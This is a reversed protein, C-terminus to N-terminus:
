QLALQWFREGAQEVLKTLTEPDHWNPVSTIGANSNTVVECGSLVAEIVARPEADFDNPLFIFHKARSMVELVEARPKNHMMLIPINNATSWSLAEGPGKQQHLRAAWLAFNEKEGVQFETVDLPSLVWSFNKPTTWELEIQIHRPTRCILRRASSILNARAQSRTQKHHIAVVPKRNALQNMADDTLQDTGTVIIQEYDLAQEWDAPQIIKVEEPAIELLRKDTMEAGGVLTGDALPLHHSVWAILKVQKKSIADLVVEM